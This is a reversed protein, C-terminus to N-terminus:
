KKHKGNAWRGIKPIQSANRNVKVGEAEESSGTRFASCLRYEPRRRHHDEHILQQWLLCKHMLRRKQPLYNFLEVDDTTFTMQSSSKMPKKCPKLVDYMKHESIKQIKWSNIQRSLYKKCADYLDRSICLVCLLTQGGCSLITIISSSMCETNSVSCSIAKLVDVFMLLM